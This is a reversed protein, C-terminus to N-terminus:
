QAAREADDRIEQAMEQATLWPLFGLAFFLGAVVLFITM